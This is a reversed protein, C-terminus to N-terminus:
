HINNIQQETTVMTFLETIAQAGDAFHAISPEKAADLDEDMALRQRGEESATCEEEAAELM